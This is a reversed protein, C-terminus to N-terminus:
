RSEGDRATWVYHFGQGRRSPWSPRLKGEDELAKLVTGMNSPNASVLSGLETSSIRGRARAYSAAVTDRPIAPRARGQASDNRTLAARSEESLTWAPAAAGPVGLVPKIVNAGSITVTSLQDLTAAAVEETDQIATGLTAADLWGVTILQRLAILLNLDERTSAPEMSRLWAIWARDPHQGSLTARVYPGGIEEITPQELGARLMDGVMRDVGIGEREAIRLRSLLEALARNRSKSPHTLINQATVGAVFGGPSTVRLQTGVHEVVTPEPLSWERHAVGNVIAERVARAPLERTQGIVLGDQEHRIPNNAEIAFLVGSLEELLSRDERRIRVTSDGGPHARRIYDLMPAQRGVFALVGANTLLGDHTVVNLRRLLDQPSASALEAAHPEDSARLLERAQEVAAPRVHQTSVTSPQASWDFQLSVMRQAHWTAPDIEVCQDAVRWKLRGRYRIPELAQPSRVILLREGRPTVHESIATTLKRETLEYIRLRLWEADLVTGIITGDNAVGVILAGGGDTNAMCASAEALGQAAADNEPTGPLLRGSRDRRGHEEKLDISQREVSDDIVEGADLRTLIVQVAEAVPDHGFHISM